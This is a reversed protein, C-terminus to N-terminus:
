FWGSCFSCFFFWRVEGQGIKVQHPSKKAAEQPEAAGPKPSPTTHDSSIHDSSFDEVEFVKSM